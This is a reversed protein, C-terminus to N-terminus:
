LLLPDQKGEFTYYRYRINNKSVFIDSEEILKYKEKIEDLTYPFYITFSIESTSASVSEIIDEEIVTIYLKNCYNFFIKYIESGGIIFIKKNTYQKLLNFINEEDIYIVNDIYSCSNIFRLTNESANRNNQTDFSSLNRTLVINIRDKLPQKNPLSEFTKRGMVVVSHLTLDRFRKLDEPLCWPIKNNVGIINDKSMAVILELDM